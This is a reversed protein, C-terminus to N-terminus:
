SAKSGKGSSSGLDRSSRGRLIVGFLRETPWLAAGFLPLRCLGLKQQGAQGSNQGTPAQPGLESRRAQLAGMRTDSRSDERDNNGRGLLMGGQNGGAGGVAGPDLKSVSHPQRQSSNGQDSELVAHVVRAPDSDCAVLVFFPFLLAMVAAGLYFPLVM